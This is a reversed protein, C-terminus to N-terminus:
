PSGRLANWKPLIRCANGHDIAELESAGFCGCEGLMRATEAATRYPYDTGFVLQSPPVLKTLSSMAWIHSAQATDYYLKGLEHMVGNPMVKRGEDKASVWARLFRETIYPMSGGGHSFIWNIDPYTAAAGSFLLKAIARTTDTSFEIVSDKLEEYMGATCDPAVPHTYVTAKRRNLEEFFPWYHRDGLWRDGINTMLLIGDAGLVDLAYEAERMSGEIDLMPVTAFVGFRRPHDVALRAMMENWERALGRAKERGSPSGAQGWIRASHPLSLISASCCGEDMSELAREATWSLAVTSELNRESHARFYAPTAPHHHVDIRYSRPM